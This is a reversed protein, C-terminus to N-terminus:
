PRNWLVIEAERRRILGNLKVPEGDVHGWVWKRFQEPAQSLAGVKILKALTSSRLRAIGLNFTFDILAAWQGKTLQAVVSSGLFMENQMAAADLDDLALVDAHAADIPAGPYIHAGLKHGWGIEWNGVPDLTPVPEFSGGKGEFEHVLALCMDQPVARM